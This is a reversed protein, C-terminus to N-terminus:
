RRAGQKRLTRFTISYRTTIAEPISHEWDTRAEGALVYASRPAVTIDVPRVAPKARGAAADAYPRLRFTCPSLLSVGVIVGFPPADRHWGIGAGVPYETILAEGFQDARVGALGAVREALPCLFDPLPPADTLSRKGFSYGFGFQAVRRRTQVGRFVFPRLEVRAIEDLLTTEEAPTIVDPEYRFGDIGAGAEGFLGPLALSHDSPSAM